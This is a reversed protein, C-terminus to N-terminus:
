LGRDRRAGRPQGNGFGPPLEAGKREGRPSDIAVVVQDGEQIGEAAIEVYARDSIGM